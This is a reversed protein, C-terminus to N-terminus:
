LKERRWAAAHEETFYLRVEFPAASLPIRALQGIRRQLREGDEDEPFARKLSTAQTLGALVLARSLQDGFLRHHYECLVLLNGAGLAGGNQRHQVHHAHLLRQRYGPAFVYTGPPAAKLVEMAGLCAQCHYGYHEQKLARKQDEEELSQTAQSPTRALPAKRRPRPVLTETSIPALPKPDPLAPTLKAASLGHGKEIEGGGTSPTQEEDDEMEEEDTEEIGTALFELQRRDRAARLLGWANAKGPKFLYEALVEYM